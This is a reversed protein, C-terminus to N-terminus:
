NVQYELITLFKQQLEQSFLTRDEKMSKCLLQM